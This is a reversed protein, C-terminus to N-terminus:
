RPRLAPAALVTTECRWRQVRCLSDVDGGDDPFTRLCFEPPALNLNLGSSSDNESTRLLQELRRAAIRAGLRGTGTLLVALRDPALLGVVDSTRLRTALAEGVSVVSAWPSTVEGSTCNQVNALRVHLVSLEDGCRESRSIESNLRARFAAGTVVGSLPKPAGSEVAALLVALVADIGALQSKVQGDDAERPALLVLWGLRRGACCLPVRVERPLAVARCEVGNGGRGAPLPAERAAPDAAARDLLGHPDHRFWYSATCTADFEPM